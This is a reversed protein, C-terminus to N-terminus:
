FHTEKLKWCTQTGLICVYHFWAQSVELNQSRQHWFQSFVNLESGRRGKEHSKKVWKIKQKWNSVYKMVTHWFSSIKGKQFHWVFSLQGYGLWLTLFERSANIVNALKPLSGANFLECRVLASNTSFMQVWKADLAADFSDYQHHLQVEGIDSM